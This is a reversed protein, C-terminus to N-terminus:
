YEYHVHRELGKFQVFILVILSLFTIVSAASSLGVNFFQFGFVYVFYAINMTSGYPGGETLVQIPTLLSTTAFIMSTIMIYFTTPTILPWKVKWFVQWPSAGDIQAAEVYNPPIQLIAATYLILNFGFIKWGAVLVVAWRAWFPDRLWSINPLGLFVFVRGIIGGMPNLMWIWVLCAIAFSLVTPSFIIIKYVQHLRSSRINVLLLSLILPFFIQFPLLGSIYILSQYVSMGFEYRRFLEQYNDIGVFSMKPKIFNWDTFSLAVNFILPWYIFVAITILIPLLYLYPIILRRKKMLSKRM